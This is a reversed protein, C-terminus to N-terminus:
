NWICSLQTYKDYIIINCWLMEPQEPGATRRKDLLHWCRVSLEAGGHQETASCLYIFLYCVKLPKIIFTSCKEKDLVSGAGGSIFCRQTMGSGAGGILLLPNVSNRSKEPSSLDIHWRALSFCHIVLWSSSKWCNIEHFMFGWPEFKNM